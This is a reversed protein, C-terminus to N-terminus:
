PDIEVPAAGMERPQTTSQRRPPKTPGGPQGIPRLADIAPRVPKLVEELLGQWGSSVSSGTIPAEKGERGMALAVNFDAVSSYATVLTEWLNEDELLAAITARHDTWLQHSLDHPPSTWWEEGDLASEIATAIDLLEGWVLRAAQRLQRDRERAEQRESRLEKRREFYFTTGFSILAGLLTAATLRIFEGV